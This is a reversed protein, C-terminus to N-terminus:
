WDGHADRHSKEHPPLGDCFGASHETIAERSCQEHGSPIEGMLVCDIAGASLFSTLYKPFTFEAEPPSHFM